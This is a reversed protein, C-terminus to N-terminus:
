AKEEQPPCIIDICAVMQEMAEGIEVILELKALRLNRKDVAAFKEARYDNWIQVKKRNALVEFKEEM